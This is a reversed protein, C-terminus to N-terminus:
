KFFEEQMSYSIVSFNNFLVIELYKQCFNFNPIKEFNKLCRSLWIIDMKQIQNKKRGSFIKLFIKPITRLVHIRSTIMIFCFHAINLDKPKVNYFSSVELPCLVTVNVCSINMSHDVSDLIWSSLDRSIRLFSM